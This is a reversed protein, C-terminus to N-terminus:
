KIADKFEPITKSIDKGKIHIGATGGVLISAGKEKLIKAREININGDVSIEIHEFGHSDLYSRTASVKEMIGDIMKGGAFGPVVLMLLIVDVYPLYKSIEEVTTDPNLAIGFRAEQQRAFSMNEMISDKCEAHVTIIDGKSIQFSRIISSPHEVLLHIDMPINTARKIANSSDPGFTLNKVFTSDMVDLHIYDVGTKEYIRIDHELNILNACMISVSLKTKM